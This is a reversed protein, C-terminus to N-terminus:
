EVGLPGALARRFKALMSRCEAAIAPLDAGLMRGGAAIAPDDALTGLNGAAIALDEVLVEATARTAASHALLTQADASGALALGFGVDIAVFQNGIWICEEALQLAEVVSV